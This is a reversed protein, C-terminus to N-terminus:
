KPSTLYYWKSYITQHKIHTKRVPLGVLFVCCNYPFIKM